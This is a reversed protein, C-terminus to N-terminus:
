WEQRVSVVDKKVTVKREPKFGKNGDEGHELLGNGPGGLVVKGPKKGRKKGARESYNFDEECGDIWKDHGGWGGGSLGMGVKQMEEGVRGM